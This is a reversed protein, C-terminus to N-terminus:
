YQMRSLPITKDVSSINMIFVKFFLTLIVRSSSTIILIFSSESFSSLDKEWYIFITKFSCITLISFADLHGNIHDDYETNILTENFETVLFTTINNKRGERREKGKKKIGINNKKAMVKLIRWYMYICYYNWYMYVCYYNWYM